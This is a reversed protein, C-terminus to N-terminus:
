FPLLLRILLINVATVLVTLPGGVRVFDMFRYNGPGVVLANVPSSVPTLFATSSALAVTMAFPYPSLGLEGAVALAVPAMLIATATNSVFLSLLVTLGYLAVLVATPNATGVLGLLSGAAADIAGTKQLAVSFPLMGVILFVTPWQISRYATNIDLCKFLGLLLCGILAAQVNPVLGTIMLAVTVALAALAFPARAPREIVDQLEGSVNLVILENADNRLRCIARWPGAVLLTDGFRIPEDQINGVLPRKGRRIGIVSLKYVSRFRTKAVTQGIFRSTPPVLLEAMGVAQSPDTFYDGPLPLQVLGFRRWFAESDPVPERLNVVLVDGVRLMTQAGPELISASLPRHREVALVSIGHEARLNLDQLCKGAWPSGAAVRLRFHRQALGYETIWKSLRPQTDEGAAPAAQPALWRRAILMYGIATALVPIGFWTFSFFGFGEYGARALQGHVVLNPPTGILTIMGSILAAVSVPMMLRSPSIGANRAMRLVAPLFIAVVATSSMVSSLGAVVVMLLAILRPERKGARRVLFDGLRHAVGTRVLGEGVVFLAAILVINPDSLGSLAESMTVVGTLPLATMMILAVIDMRPWNLAFMATTAFLLLLVIALDTNM